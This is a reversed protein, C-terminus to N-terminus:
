RSEPHITSVQVSLSMRLLATAAITISLPAKVKTRSRRATLNTKATSRAICTQILQGNSMIASLSISNGTTTTILGPQAPPSVRIASAREPLSTRSATQAPMRSARPKSRTAMSSREPSRNTGTAAELQGPPMGFLASLSDDWDVDNTRIDWSWTGMRGADLALQLRQALDIAPRAFRLAADDRKRGLIAKASDVLRRFAPRHTTPGGVPESAMARVNSATDRARNRADRAKRM